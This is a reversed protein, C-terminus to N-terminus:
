LNVPRRASVIHASTTFAVEGAPTVFGALEREATQLLQELQDDDIAEDDTWGRAGTHIWARISAFRATGSVTAIGIDPIDASDFLNELVRKDGLRFPVEDEADGGLVQRWVNEEAAFGPNNALSDWVAVALSGGSRLVRMMERLSLGPNEFYMLGFQSVVSDFRYEEFPLAEARANLWKVGTSKSRAITLMGDNIDIGVVSGELGTHELAKIALAGSGRM